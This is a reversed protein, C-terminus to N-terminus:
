DGLVTQQRHHLLLEDRAQLLLHDLAGEAGDGLVGRQQAQALLARVHGLVVRDDLRRLVRRVRQQVRQRTPDHTGHTTTVQLNVLKM